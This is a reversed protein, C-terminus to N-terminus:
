ATMELLHTMQRFLSDAYDAKLVVSIYENGNDRLSYLILCSGAMNTTGTKGALVTVGEPAQTKGNLYRDTTTFTKQVANGSADKYKATYTEKGSIKIFEKYKKLEHFILYLDYATTYHEDDHLGHPNVFHSGTCGLKKVEDNMMVSFEEVSGAIHEAIAIGADNGSHVLFSNLLVRMKVKDGEAFGCKTAGWESIHSANYSITVKDNLNGYKLAVLATVIKTISAPYMKQYINKTFLAKGDSDNILLAAQATMVPDTDNKINKSLVCLDKSFPEAYYVDEGPIYSSISVDSEYHTVADPLDSCATLLVSCSVLLCIMKKMKM